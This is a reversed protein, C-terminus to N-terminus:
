QECAEREQGRREESSSVRGEEWVGKQCERLDQGLQAVSYTLHMRAQQTHERRVLGMQRSKGLRIREEAAWAGVELRRSRM